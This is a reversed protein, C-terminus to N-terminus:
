LPVQCSFTEWFGTLNNWMGAQFFSLQFLNWFPAITKPFDRSQWGWLLLLPNSQRGGLWPTVFLTVNLPGDSETVAGGTLWSIRCLWDPNLCARYHWHFITKLAMGEEEWFVMWIHDAAAAGMSVGNATVPSSTAEEETSVWRRGLFVSATCCLVVSIIVRGSHRYKREGM